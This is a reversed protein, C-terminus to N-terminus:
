SAASSRAADQLDLAVATLDDGLQHGGTTTRVKAGPMAGAWLDRHAFPVVDDDESAYLFVEPELDELGEPLDFGDFTWDPDGGPFPAAIIAVTRISPPCELALQALLLYGGISHGVVIDASEIAASIAPLWAAEDPDGEDPMLPYAVQFGLERSLSAVLEADEAHAGDGGGQIFVVNTM